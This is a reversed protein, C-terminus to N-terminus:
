GGTALLRPTMKGIERAAGVSNNLFRRQTRSPTHGYAGLPKDGHLGTRMFGVSQHLKRM